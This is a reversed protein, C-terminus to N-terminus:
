TRKVSVAVGEGYEFYQTQFDGDGELLDLFERLHRVLMRRKKPPDGRVWGRLLVDDSVLTGGGKLLRKCDAFYRRYQVKPGDLFILDFAGNLRPLIEGADGELLSVSGPSPPYRLLNERMAQARAADKEVATVEAGAFAALAISTFGEGAGIELAKAPRVRSAHGLLLALTEDACTPDRGRKAAERAAKFHDRADEEM